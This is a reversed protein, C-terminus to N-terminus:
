TAERSSTVLRADGSTQTEAHVWALYAPLGRAAQFALIEPVEYPHATRIAAELAPYAEGPTKILLMVEEASEIVGQWRYISRAGPLVTVCAAHRAEVLSVALNEAQIRDPLTTLVLLTDM